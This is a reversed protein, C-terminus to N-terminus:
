AKQSAKWAAKCQKKFSHRDKLSDPFKAKAAAKCTEAAAAPAIQLPLAFAAVFATAIVAFTIKKLM